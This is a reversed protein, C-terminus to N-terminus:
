AIYTKNDGWRYAGCLGILLLTLSLLCLTVISGFIGCIKLPSFIYVGYNGQLPDLFVEFSLNPLTM